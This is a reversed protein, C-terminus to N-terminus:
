MFFLMVIRERGMGAYGNVYMNFVMNNNIKINDPVFQKPFVVLTTKITPKEWVIEAQCYVQIKKNVYPM